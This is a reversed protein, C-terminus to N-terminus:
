SFDWYNTAVLDMDCRGGTGPGLAFALRSNELDPIIMRYDNRLMLQTAVESRGIRRKRTLNWIEGVWRGEWGRLISLKQEEIIQVRYKDNPRTFPDETLEFFDRYEAQELKDNPNSRIKDGFLQLCGQGSQDPDEHDVRRRGRLFCGFRTTGNKEEGEDPYWYCRDNHVRIFVPSHNGDDQYRVALFFDM